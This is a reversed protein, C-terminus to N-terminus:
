PDAALLLELLLMDPVHLTRLKSAMAKSLGRKGTMVRSRHVSGGFLADLEKPPLKMEELLTRLHRLRFAHDDNM